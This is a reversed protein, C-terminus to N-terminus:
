PRVRPAILSAALAAGAACLTVFLVLFILVTFVVFGAMAEPTALMWRAADQVRIDPNTVIIKELSNRLGITIQDVRELAVREYLAGVALIIVWLGFGVAGTFAGVRLGSRPSVVENTHRQHLWVVLAGALPMLVFFLQALPLMLLALAVAVPVAGRRM